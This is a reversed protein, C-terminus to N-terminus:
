LITSKDRLFINILKVEEEKITFYLGCPAGQLWISCGPRNRARAQEAVQSRPLTCTGSIAGPILLHAALVRLWGGRTRHPPEKGRAPYAAWWVGLASDAKRSGVPEKCGQQTEKLLAEDTM